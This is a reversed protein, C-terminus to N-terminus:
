EELENEIADIQAHGQTEAQVAAAGKEATILAKADSAWTESDFTFATETWEHSSNNFGIIIGNTIKRINFM